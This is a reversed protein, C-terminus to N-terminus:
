SALRRSAAALALAAIVLWTTALMDAMGDRSALQDIAAYGPNSQYGSALLPWVSKILALWRSLTEGAGSFATVREPTVLVAMCGRDQAPALALAVVLV